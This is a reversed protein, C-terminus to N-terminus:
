CKGNYNSYGDWMIGNSNAWKQKNCASYYTDSFNIRNNASDLGPTNGTTLTSTGTANYISGSNRPAKNNTKDYGPILCYNPDTSDIQWYDPCTSEFPPWAGGQSSVGKKRLSIGVFTLLIILMAIAVSIVIIYFYDM